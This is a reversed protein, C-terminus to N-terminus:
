IIRAPNGATEVSLEGNHCDLVIRRGCNGNIDAAAVAIGHTQLAAVVANVNAVGIPTPRPTGFMSAGGTVKAEVNERCAGMAEVVRLMEPVARDAFKGPLGRDHIAAAPLVVHGLAGVQHQPDYFTLGVCSGLVARLRTVGHGTAIQGMGVIIDNHTRIESCSSM